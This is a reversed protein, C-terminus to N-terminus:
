EITVVLGPDGVAASIGQNTVVTFIRDETANFNAFESLDIVTTGLMNNQRGKDSTEVVTLVVCKKKFKTAENNNAGPEKYLTAPVEIAENFCYRCRLDNGATQPM